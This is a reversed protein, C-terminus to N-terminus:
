PRKPQSRLAYIMAQAFPIGFIIRGLVSVSHESEDRRIEAVLVGRYYVNYIHESSESVHSM